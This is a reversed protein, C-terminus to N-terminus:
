QRCILIRRSVTQELKFIQDFYSTLGRDRDANEKVKQIMQKLQRLDSKRDIEGSEVVKEILEFHYKRLHIRFFTEIGYINLMKNLAKKSDVTLFDNYAETDVARKNPPIAKLQTEEIGYDATKETVASVPQNEPLSLIEKLKENKWEDTYEGYKRQMLGEYEELMIAKNAIQGIPRNKYKGIDAFVDKIIQHAMLRKKYQKEYEDMLVTQFFNKLRSITELKTDVYGEIRSINNKKDEQAVELSFIKHSDKLIQLVKNLDKDTIGYLSTTQKSFTDSHPVSDINNKSNYEVIKNYIDQSLKEFM